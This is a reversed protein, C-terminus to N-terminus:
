KKVTFSIETRGLQESELTVKIWGEEGTTKVYTGGFGGRIAVVQPGIITGPGELRVTVADNFFHCVNGNQDKVCLRMSAVDYTDGELLETHDTNVELHIEDTSTKLVKSVVKGDKIGEFLYTTERTGWNGIYKGYLAYADEYKMKYRTMLFAAKVMIAPSMKGQGHIASYNLLDTVYQAQKGTFGEKEAIQNGVYDSIAIPGHPLNKYPSDSPKYERIFVGNKYMKVSDANSVFYLEGINSAPHEGIDMSSSVELVPNEDGFAAYVSAAPKPNRYMDMVGHYCIRDGSGFDKHTNYDAFCWGFSGAIDEEGSIADVVKAHRLLHETRHLESDFAKTPYMHGNYETVLYGKEMDSTVDSKKACGQNKGSHIFDNYTYVDELLSSKKLYRVGGTQRTEDLAHAVANTRRYFPDDDQSENIRVGWLIISPHNRYQIVMEKVNEVAQDKWADDGIHQWGPIETFVLIGLEDCKDIFYHSQPYHSTRVANLCLEEKLIRADLEQQSRPMAYGVYAYSQHRDLGRIKFKKGNLYFGDKRFEAERFGVRVVREDYVQGDRLLETKVCYLYPDETSWRRIEGVKLELLFATRDEDYYSVTKTKLKGVEDAQNLIVKGDADFVQQHLYYGSGEQGDLLIETKLVGDKGKCIPKLFVDEFHYPAKVELTVERYMGGYTMYDIVFGFPPTNQSERSDCRVAILNDGTHVFPAIDASFATYGTHHETVYEGNVYVTASHGVAGFTLILSKESWEEPVSLVKRYGAVMQYVSEDFYDYPTEKVTHPLRVFETNEVEDGALFEDSWQQTFEWGNNLAIKRYM